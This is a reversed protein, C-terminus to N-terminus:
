AAKKKPTDEAADEAKNKRKKKDGELKPAGDADPDYTLQVPKHGRAELMEIVSDKGVLHGAGVMVMVDRNGAIAKEIQPIWSRNRNVLLVDRLKLNDEFEANVLKDLSEIDGARWAKILDDLGDAVKGLEQLTTRLMEDNEEASFDDFMGIQFEVTELGATLKGDRAALAGFRMELGLDPRAGDRMAEISSLTLALMGPKLRALQEAPLDREHLFNDLLQYTEATIYAQVTEGEPLSSLEQMKMMTGPDSLLAPDIEFILEEAQEYAENYNPPIPFDQPRLLHVSGAIFITNTAGDIKWVVARGEGPAGIGPKPSLGFATFGLVVAAAALPRKM